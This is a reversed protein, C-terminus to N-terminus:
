TVPPEFSEERQRPEGQSALLCFSLARDDILVLKILIAAVVVIVLSTGQVFENGVVVYLPRLAPLTLTGLRLDLSASAVQVSDVCRVDELSFPRPTGGPKVLLLHKCSLLIAPHHELVHRRVFHVSEFVRVLLLFGVLFVALVLICIFSHCRILLRSVLLVGKWGGGM